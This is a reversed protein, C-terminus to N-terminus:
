RAPVSGRPPPQGFVQAPYRRLSETMERLNQVTAQMDRLLPVLAQQLDATGAGARQATAQVTAILAPLKAAATAFRDMALEANALLKQVQDGQLTGRLATSTQRLDATLGPLDAAKVTQDMTRLLATAQELTTHVDGSQLATRLDDILGTAESALKDFDVSNLKALVRQAADQVQLFTSPMSPIYEGKPQWPVSLAPYQKPSVFDLELYSLGTIGQAALRARLGLNVMTQTDTDPGIKATDVEYRVFVLQYLTGERGMRETTGYGASVLGLETVRGITVGRYKVAAGVELGQVSESFYSEFLTGHQIRSGGLFWILAVLLGIGGLILLGVRLYVSRLGM